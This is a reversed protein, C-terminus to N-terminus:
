EPFAVPQPAKRTSKGTAARTAARIQQEEDLFPVPHRNIRLTPRKVRAPYTFWAASQVPTPTPPRNPIPTPQRNPIPTHPRNTIPAPRLITSHIHTAPSHANVPLAYLQQHAHLSRNSYPSLAVLATETTSSGGKAPTLHDERQQVVMRGPSLSQSPTPQRALYSRSGDPPWPKSDDPLSARLPLGVGTPARGGLAAVSATTWVPEEGVVQRALPNRGCMAMQRGEM